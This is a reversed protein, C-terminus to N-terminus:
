IRSSQIIAQYLKRTKFSGASPDKIVERPLSNCLLIESDLFSKVDTLKIKGKFKMWNSRNISEEVSRLM